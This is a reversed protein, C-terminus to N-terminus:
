YVPDESCCCCCTQWSDGLTRLGAGEVTDALVAPQLEVESREVVVHQSLTVLLVLRHGCPEQRFPDSVDRFPGSIDEHM